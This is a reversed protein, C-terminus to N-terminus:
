RGKLERGDDGGCGGLWERSDGQGGRNWSWGERELSRSTVEIDTRIDQVLSEKDVYDYEPRVFGLIELRMPADYFDASFSHM